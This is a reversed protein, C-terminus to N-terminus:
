TGCVLYTVVQVIHMILLICTKIIKAALGQNFLFAVNIYHFASGVASINNEM